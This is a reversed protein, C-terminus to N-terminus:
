ENGIGIIPAIDAGEFHYMYVIKYDKMEPAREVMLRGSKDAIDSISKQLAKRGQDTELWALNEEITSSEDEFMEKAYKSTNVLYKYNLTCTSDVFLVELGIMKTLFDVQIPLQEKLNNSQENLLLCAEKKTIAFSSFSLFTLLLAWMVKEIKNLM